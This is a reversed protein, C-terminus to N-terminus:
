DLPDNAGRQEHEGDGGHPGDESVIDRLQEAALLMVQRLPIKRRLTVRTIGCWGSPASSRINAITTFSFPPSCFRSSNSLGSTVIPRTCPLSMMRGLPLTELRWERMTSLSPLNMM